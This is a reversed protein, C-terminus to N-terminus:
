YRIIRDDPMQWTLDNDTRPAIGYVRPEEGRARRRAEKARGERAAQDFLPTNPTNIITFSPTAQAQAAGNSPVGIAVTSGATGATAASPLVTVSGDPNTVATTGTGLTATSGVGIGTGSNGAATGSSTQGESTGLATNGSDNSFSGGAGFRPQSNNIDTGTASNATGNVTSSAGANTTTPATGGATTSTSPTAGSTPAAVSAGATASPTTAAPAATGTAAAQTEFGSLALAVSAALIISRM